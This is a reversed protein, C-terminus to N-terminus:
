AATSAYIEAKRANTLLGISTAFLTTFVAILALMAPRTPAFDLATIAGVLLIPSLAVSIVSVIQKIKHESFYTLGTWGHREHRKSLIHYGLNNQLMSTLRDHETTTGLAVLDHEDNFLDHSGGILPKNDRFWVSLASKCRSLPPELAMIRSQRLMADHYDAMLQRLRKVLRMRQVERESGESAKRELVEWCRAPLMELWSEMGAEDAKRDLEDLADIEGSLAMLESQMYVLNRSALKGMRRYIQLDNDTSLFDSLTAFGPAPKYIHGHDQHAELDSPSQNCSNQDGSTSM